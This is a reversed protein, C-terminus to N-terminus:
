WNYNLHSIRIGGKKSNVTGVISESALWCLPRHQFQSMEEINLPKRSHLHKLDAPLLRKMAYKPQSNLYVKMQHKLAVAEEVFNLGKSKPECNGEIAESDRENNIESLDVGM